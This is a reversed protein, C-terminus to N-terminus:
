RRRCLRRANRLLERAKTRHPSSRHRRILRRLFAKGEPCARIKYHAEGLKLLALDVNDSNPFKKRIDNYWIIAEFYNRLQFYCDGLLLYAKHSLKHTPYKKVFEKLQTRAEKYKGNDYLAKASNIAADPSVVVTVQTGGAAPTATPDGFRLSYAKFLKTHQEQQKDYEMKLAQFKGLLQQHLTRLEDMKVGINAFNYRGKKQFGDFVRNLKRLSVDLQTMQRLLRAQKNRVAEFETRLTLLQGEVKQLDGSTACGCLTITLFLACFILRRQKM